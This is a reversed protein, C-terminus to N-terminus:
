SRPAANTSPTTSRAPSSPRARSHSASGVSGVGASTSAGPSHSARRSGRSVAGAGAACDSRRGPEVATRRLSLPRPRGPTSRRGPRGGGRLVGCTHSPARRRETPSGPNFLRQGGEGSRTSRCTAFPRLDGRRGRPVLAAAPPGSGVAAGSDHVMSVAVGDLDLDVREPLVDWLQVDNNGLVAHVPAHRGLLDLVTPDILDGAHLIM